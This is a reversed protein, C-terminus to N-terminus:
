DAPEKKVVTTATPPPVLVTSKPSLEYNTGVPQGTDPDIINGKMVGAASFGSKYPIGTQAATQEPINVGRTVSVRTHYMPEPFISWAHEVGEIYYRESTDKSYDEYPTSESQRVNNNGAQIVMEMGIKVFPNGLMEFTGVWKKDTERFVDYLWQTMDDLLKDAGDNGTSYPDKSEKVLESAPVAVPEGRYTMTQNLNNANKNLTYRGISGIRSRGTMATEQTVTSALNLTYEKPFILSSPDVISVVTTNDTVNAGEITQGVRVSGQSIASVIMKTGSITAKFKCEETEAWGTILTDRLSSSLEADIAGGSGDAYLSIKQGFTITGTTVELIHIINGYIQAKFVSTNAVSTAIADAKEKDKIAATRTEAGSPYYQGTFTLPSTKSGIGTSTDITKSLIWGGLGDADATKGKEKLKTETNGLLGSFYNSDAADLNQSIITTNVRIPGGTLIKTVILEQKYATASATGPKSGIYGEFTVQALSPFTTPPPSIGFCKEPTGSGYFLLVGDKGRGAWYGTLLSSVKVDGTEASVMNGGGVYIGIHGYNGNDTSPRFFVLDGINISNVNSNNTNKDTIANAWASPYLSQKGYANECFRECYGSYVSGRGVLNMAWQIAQDRTRTEGPVYPSPEPSRLGPIYKGARSPTMVEKPWFPVRIQLPQLGFQKMGDFDYQPNMIVNGNSYETNELPKRYSNGGTSAGGDPSQAPTFEGQTCWFYTPRDNGTKRLSSSMIMDRSVEISQPDRMPDFWYNKQGYRMDDTAQFPFLGKANRFPAWRIKFLSKDEQDEIFMEIFPPPCYHEIYRFLSGQSQQLTFGTQMIIRDAGLLQPMNVDITFQLNNATDFAMLPDRFVEGLVQTVWTKFDQFVTDTPTKKVSLRQSLLDYQYQRNISEQAYTDQPVFVSKSVIAKGLDRGIITVVRQPSGDIGQNVNESIDISDVMGRMIIPPSVNGYMNNILQSNRGLRIEIFSNIDIDKINILRNNLITPRLQLSWTGVPERLSKRTSGALVYETIDYGKVIVQHVISDMTAVTMIEHEM